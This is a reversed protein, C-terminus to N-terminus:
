GHAAHGQHIRRADFGDMTQMFTEVFLAAREHECADVIVHAIHQVAASENFADTYLVKEPRAILSDDFSLPSSTFKASLRRPM